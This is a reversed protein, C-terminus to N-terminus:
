IVFLGSEDEYLLKPIGKKDKTGRRWKTKEEKESKERKRSKGGGLGRGKKEKTTRGRFPVKEERSCFLLVCVVM